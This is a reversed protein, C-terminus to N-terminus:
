VMRELRNVVHAARLAPRRLQRMTRAVIAPIDIGLQGQLDLLLRFLPYTIPSLHYLHYTIPTLPEGDLM